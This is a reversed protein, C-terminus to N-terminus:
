SLLSMNSENGAFLWPWRSRQLDCWILLRAYSSQQMDCVNTARNFSHQDASLSCIKLFDTIHVLSFFFALAPILSESACSSVQQTHCGNETILQLARLLINWLIPKEVVPVASSDVTNSDHTFGTYILLPLARSSVACLLQQQCKVIM